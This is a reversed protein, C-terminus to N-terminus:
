AALALPVFAFNRVITPSYNAGATGKRHRYYLQKLADENFDNSDFDFQDCFAKIRIMPAISPEAQCYQVLENEIMYDVMNSFVWLEVTNLLYQSRTQHFERIGVGIRETLPAPDYRRGTPKSADPKAYIHVKESQAMAWLFLGPGLASPDVLMAHREGKPDTLKVHIFKRVRPLVPLEFLVPEEFYM